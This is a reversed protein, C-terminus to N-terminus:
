LTAPRQLATTHVRFFKSLQLCSCQAIKTLMAPRWLVNQVCPYGRLLRGLLMVALVSICEHVDCPLEIGISPRAIYQSMGSIGSLRDNLRVAARVDSTPSTGMWRICQVRPAPLTLPWTPQLDHRGVLVTMENSVVTTCYCHGSDMNPTSFVNARGPLSM